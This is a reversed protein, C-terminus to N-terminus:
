CAPDPVVDIGGSDFALQLMDLGPKIIPVTFDTGLVTHVNPAQAASRVHRKIDLNGIGLDANHRALAWRHRIRPRASTYARCMSLDVEAQREEQEITREKATYTKQLKTLKSEGHAKQM